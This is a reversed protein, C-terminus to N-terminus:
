DSAGAPALRHRRVFMHVIGGGLVLLALASLMPITTVTEGFTLPTTSPACNAAVDTSIYGHDTSGAITGMQVSWVQGTNLGTNARLYSWKAAFDILTTTGFSTTGVEDTTRIYGDGNAVGFDPPAIKSGSNGDLDDFRTADWSTGVVANGGTSVLMELGHNANNASKADWAIAWVTTTGQPRIMVFYSANPVNSVGASNDIRMRFYVYNEDQRWYAAPDTADGVIDLDESLGDDPDNLNTMATWTSPWNTYEGGYMLYSAAWSNGGLGGVGLLVALCFLHKM